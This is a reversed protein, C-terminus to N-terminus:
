RRLVTAGPMQSAADGCHLSDHGVQGNLDLAFRWTIQGGDRVKVLRTGARDADVHFGEVVVDSLAPHGAFRRDREVLVSLRPTFRYADEAAVLNGGVEQDAQALIRVFQYRASRFQDLHAHIRKDNRETWERSRQRHIRVRGLM